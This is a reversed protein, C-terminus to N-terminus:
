LRYFSLINKIKVPGFKRSDISIKRSDGMLFLEDKGIVLQPFDFIFNNSIYNESIKKGNIILVGKKVQITESSLGVVRKILNKKNNKFHVIDFRKPKYSFIIKRMIISSGNLLSPEMSKEIINIKQNFFNKFM